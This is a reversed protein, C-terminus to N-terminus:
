EGGNPQSAAFAKLMGYVNDVEAVLQKDDDATLVNTDRLVSSRASTLVTRLKSMAAHFAEDHEAVRAHLPWRMGPTTSPPAAAVSPQTGAPQEFSTDPTVDPTDLMNTVTQQSRLQQLQAGMPIQVDMDLLLDHVKAAQELSAAKREAIDLEMQKRSCQRDLLDCEERMELVAKRMRGVEEQVGNTIAAAGATYRNAYDEGVGLWETSTATHYDIRALEGDLANTKWNRGHTDMIVRLMNETALVREAADYVVRDIVIALATSSFDPPQPREKTQYRLVMTQVHRGEEFRTVEKMLEEEHERAEAEDALMDVESSYVVDLGTATRKPKRGTAAMRTQRAQQKKVLASAVAYGQQQEPSMVEGSPVQASSIEEAQQSAVAQLAEEDIDSDTETDSTPAFTADELMVRISRAQEIAERAVASRHRFGTLLHRYYRNMAAEDHARKEEAERQAAQELALQRREAPPLLRGRQRDRAQQVELATMMHGTSTLNPQTLVRAEAAGMQAEYLATLSASPEAVAAVGGLPVPPVIHPSPRQLARQGSVAKAKLPQPPAPQRATHSGRLSAGARAPPQPGRATNGNNSRSSHM